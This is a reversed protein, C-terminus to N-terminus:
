SVSGQLQYVPLSFYFTAGKGKESEVWIRGHHREVVKKCIALGIGTGAYKSRSHLRQFIVFIREAYKPDIGIGNDKVCFIWERRERQVGIHITPPQESKFKIANSILNQLLQELMSANGLVEPLDDCTINTDTEEIKSSLNRLTRQLVDNMTVPVFRERNTQVRSHTLLDNILTKMRSAGDVAYGIFERGEDDIQERYRDEVLQLYSTVMRLPEQLDHSAVYAFQQLEENSRRLDEEAQIRATIDTMIGRAGIAKGHEDKVIIARAEIHVTRGDRAIMRFEIPEPADSHYNEESKRKTHEVDDPHIWKLGVGPANNWEELTYGLMGIGFNNVFVMTQGTAPDGEGEWVMVPVTNLIDELRQRQTDVIRAMSLIKRQLEKEQMEAQRVETINRFVNVSFQPKGNKDLVPAATIHIWRDGDPVYPSSSRITIESRVGDRLVKKYPMDDVTVHNGTEDYMRYSRRVEDQTMSKIREASLGTLKAASANAYVYKENVDMVTIGSDVADLIAELQNTTVRLAENSRKLRHQLWTPLLSVLLFVIYWMAQEWSIFTQGAPAVLVLETLIVTWVASVLAATFGAFYGTLTIGAFFILFPFASAVGQLLLTLITALVPLGIAWVVDQWRFELFKFQRHKHAVQMLTDSLAVM